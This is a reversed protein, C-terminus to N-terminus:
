FGFPALFDLPSSIGARERMITTYGVTFREVFSKIQRKEKNSLTPTSLDVYKLFARDTVTQVYEQLFQRKMEASLREVERREKEVRSPLVKDFLGM